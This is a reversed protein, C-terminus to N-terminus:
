PLNTLVHATNAKILFITRDKGTPVTDFQIKDQLLTSCVSGGGDELWLLLLVMLVAAAVAAPVCGLFGSTM